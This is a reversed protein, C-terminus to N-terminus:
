RETLTPEQRHITLEQNDRSRTKKDGNDPRQQSKPRAIKPETSKVEDGDRDPENKLCGKERHPTM